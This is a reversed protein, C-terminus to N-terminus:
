LYIKKFIKHKNISYKLYCKEMFSPLELKHWGKNSSTDRINKSWLIGIGITACRQDNNVWKAAENISSDKKVIIMSYDGGNLDINDLRFFNPYESYFHGWFYSSFKCISNYNQNQYFNVKKLNKARVYSGDYNACRSSDIVWRKIEKIAEEYNDIKKEYENDGYM